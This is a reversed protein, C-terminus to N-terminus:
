TLAIIKGNGFDEHGALTVPLKYNEGGAEKWCSAFWQKVLEVTVDVVPFKKKYEEIDILPLDNAYEAIGLYRGPFFSKDTRDVKKNKGEFYMGISVLGDGGEDPFVEVYIETVDSRLPQELMWNLEKILFESYRELHEKYIRAFDQESLGNPIESKTM